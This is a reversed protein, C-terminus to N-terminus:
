AQSGSGQGHGRVHGRKGNFRSYVGRYSSLEMLIKGDGKETFGGHYTCIIVVM